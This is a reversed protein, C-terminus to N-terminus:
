KNLMLQNMYKKSSSYHVTYIIYKSWISTVLKLTSEESLGGNFIYNIHL